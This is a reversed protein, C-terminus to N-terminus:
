KFCGKEYGLRIFEQIKNPKVIRITRFNENDKQLLEEYEQVMYDRHQLTITNTSYVNDDYLTVMEDAIDALTDFSYPLEFLPNRHNVLLIIDWYDETGYLEHSIRELKDDNEMLYYEFLDETCEKVFELIIGYDFSTFDEVSYGGVTENDFDLISNSMYEM